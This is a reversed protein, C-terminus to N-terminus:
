LRLSAANEVRAVYRLQGDSSLIFKLEGYRVLQAGEFDPGNRIAPVEFPYLPRAEDPVGFQTLMSAANLTGSYALSEHRVSEVNDVKVRVGREVDKIAQSIHPPREGGFEETPAPSEKKMARLRAVIDPRSVTSQVATMWGAEMVTADKSWHVSALYGIRLTKGERRLFLDRVAHGDISPPEKVFGQLRVYGDTPEVTGPEHRPDIQDVVSSFPAIQDFGAQDDRREDWTFDGTWSKGAVNFVVLQGDPRLSIGFSPETSQESASMSVWDGLVQDRRLGIQKWFSFASAVGAFVLLLCVLQIAMRPRIGLRLSWPLRALALVGTLWPAVTSAAPDHESPDGLWRPRAGDTQPRHGEDPVAQGGASRNSSALTTADRSDVSKTIEIPARGGQGEVASGAESGASTTRLVVKGTGDILVLDGNLCASLVHFRRAEIWEDSQDSQLLADPPLMGRAAFGILERLKFPGQFAGPMGRVQFQPVVTGPPHPLPTKKESFLGIDSARFWPGESGGGIVADPGIIGALASERLEVGSFPGALLRDTRVFFATM